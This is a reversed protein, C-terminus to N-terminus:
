KIEVIFKISGAEQPDTIWKLSLNSAQPQIYTWAECFMRLANEDDYSPDRNEELTASVPVYKPAIISSYKCENIVKRNPASYRIGFVRSAEEIYKKGSLKKKLFIVTKDTSEELIPIRMNHLKSQLLSERITGESLNNKELEQDERLQLEEIIADKLQSEDIAVRSTALYSSCFRRVAPVIWSTELSDYDQIMQLAKTKYWAESLEVDDITKSSDGIRKEDHIHLHSEDSELLKQELIEELIEDNPYRKLSEKVVSIPSRKCAEHRVEFSKDFALNSLLKTPLTKAALKRAAPLSSSSLKIMVSPKFQLYNVNKGTLELYSIRDSVANAAESLSIFAEDVSSGLVRKAEEQLSRTIKLENLQKKAIKNLDEQKIRM